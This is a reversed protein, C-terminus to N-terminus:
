TTDDVALREFAVTNVRVFREIPASKENSQNTFAFTAAVNFQPRDFFLLAHNDGLFDVTVSVRTGASWTAFANTRLSEVIADLAVGLDDFRINLKEVAQFACRANDENSLNPGIPNYLAYSLPLGRLREVSEVSDFLCALLGNIRDTSTMIAGGYRGREGKSLRGGRQLAKVRDAVTGQPRLTLESLTQKLLSSKM